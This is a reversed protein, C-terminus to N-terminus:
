RASNAIHELGPRDLVTSKNDLEVQSSKASTSTQTSSREEAPRSNRKAIGLKQKKGWAVLQRVCEEGYAIRHDLMKQAACAAFHKQTCVIFVGLASKQTVPRQHLIGSSQDARENNPIGIDDLANM